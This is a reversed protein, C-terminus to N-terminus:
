VSFSKRTRVPEFSIDDPVAAAPDILLEAQHDLEAKYDHLRKLNLDGLEKMKASYSNMIQFRAPDKRTNSQTGLTKELLSSHMIDAPLVAIAHYMAMPAVAARIKYILQRDDNTLEGDKQKEILQDYLTQGIVPIIYSQEAERIQPLIELYFRRSNNINIYLNFDAAANIFLGKSKGQEESGAWCELADVNADLFEILDDVFEHATDLISQVARDIQWEPAPKLQDTHAVQFGSDSLIVSAQPAWLYYAYHVLADQIRDVLQDLLGYDPPTTEGDPLPPDDDPDYVHPTYGTEHVNNYFDSNYHDEAAQWVCQGVVRTIYRQARKLVPKINDFDNSTIIRIHQQLEETTKIIM